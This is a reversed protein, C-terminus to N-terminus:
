TQRKKHVPTINAYKRKSLCLGHSLGFNIFATTSPALVEACEKLIINPLGNPGVSKSVNISSLLSTVEKM